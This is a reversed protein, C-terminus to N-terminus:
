EESVEVQRALWHAKRKLEYLKERVWQPNELEADYTGDAVEDIRDCLDYLVESFLRYDDM